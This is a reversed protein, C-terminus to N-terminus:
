AVQSIIKSKTEIDIGLFKTQGAETFLEIIVAFRKGLSSKASRRYPIIEGVDYKLTEDPSPPALSRIKEWFPRAGYYECKMLRQKYETDSWVELQKSNTKILWNM